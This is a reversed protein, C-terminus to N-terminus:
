SRIICANWNVKGMMSLCGETGREEGDEGAEQEDGDGGGTGTRWCGRGIGDWVQGRHLDYLCGLDYLGACPDLVDNMLVGDVGFLGTFSVWFSWGFDGLVASLAVCGWTWYVVDWMWVMLGKADLDEGARRLEKM